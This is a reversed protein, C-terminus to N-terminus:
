LGIPLNYYDYAVQYTENVPVLFTNKKEIYVM